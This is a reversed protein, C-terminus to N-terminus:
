FDGVSNDPVSTRARGTSAAAPRSGARTDPAVGPAATTAAPPQNAAASRARAGSVIGVLEVVMNKVTDAHQGLQDSVTSSEQAEAANEQTVKNMQAIASNVQEVGQAQEESAKAIGNILETVKTVGTVIGSLSAGVEDVVQRGERSRTISGEILTTTEHAAQAARQALNRVEDAVVAFGKGHEGARAAEVAANLALLNTQFAIEEIVKIIKSIKDASESIGAMAQNLRCMTQDSATASQQAQSALENATRANDANTRTMAAMEEMASSTEELSSAQESSSDALRQSSGGIQGAITVLEDSRTRLHGIVRTLSRVLPRVVLPLLCLSMLVLASGGLAGSVALSHNVAAQFTGRADALMGNIKSKSFELHLLGYLKGVELGPQLRRTDADVYLPQYMALTDANEVVIVDKTQQAKEWVAADVAGGIRDAPSALEVKRSTGVFTIADIEAHQRQQDALITFQRSEGTQLLRESAVRIGQLIGQAGDRKVALSSDQVRGLTREFGRVYLTHQVAFLAGMFVAFLALTPVFIRKGLSANRLNM